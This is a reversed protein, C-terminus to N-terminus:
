EYEAWPSVTDNLLHRIKEYQEKSVQVDWGKRSIFGREEFGGLIRSVTRESLGTTEVFERRSICVAQDEVKEYMSCIKLAVREAGGVLVNLREKRAQKLLYEGIKAAEIRFVHSDEGIWKEYKKRSTKLLVCDTDACLSTMYEELGSIIEMTGFTEVPSFTYHKYQIGLVRQEMACVQGELLMYVRDALDGEEVFLNGAPVHVMQLSDMLWDPANRFYEQIYNRKEETLTRIFETTRKM